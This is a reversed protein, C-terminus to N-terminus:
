AAPLQANVFERLSNPIPARPALLQVVNGAHIDCTIVHGSVRARVDNIMVRLFEQMFWLEWKGRLWRKWDLSNLLVNDAQLQRINRRYNPDSVCQQEWARLGANLQRILNGNADFHFCSPLRLNGLHARFGRRRVELVWAMIPRMSQQFKAHQTLFQMKWPDFLPHLLSLGILDTWVREFMESSVLYNEFSYYETVFLASDHVHALGLIDWLDKDVFFLCRQADPRHSRIKVLAGLVGDKNGCPINIFQRRSQIIQGYFCCDDKGELFIFCRDPFLPHHKLFDAFATAASARAARLSTVSTM